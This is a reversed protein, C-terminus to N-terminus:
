TEDIDKIIVHANPRKVKLQVYCSVAFKQAGGTRALPTCRAMIPTLEEDKGNSSPLGRSTERVGDASAGSFPLYVIEVEDENLMYFCGATASRDRVIPDGRWDLGRASGQFSQVPRSGDNVTRVTSHFLGEYKRHGQTTAVLLKPEMGCRQYVQSEAGSLLDMSLPRATGGNSVTNGAWEPFSGKAIGAYTNTTALAYDLGFIAPQGGRTGTGSFLDTNIMDIIASCANMFREEVLDVLENANGLNRAAVEIELDSLSFSSRYHGWPLVASQVPDFTFESAQVDSGEAFATATAGSTQVDWAVNKGYGQGGGPVARLTRALVARRNWLRTLRPAFTQALAGSINSLLETAM